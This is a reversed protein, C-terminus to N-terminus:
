SNLQSMRDLYIKTPIDLPFQVQIKKFLNKATQFDSSQYANFAATFLKALIFDEPKPGIESQDDISALLEFIKTKEKKGKVEIIDLPRVVFLNEVKAFTHEGIIIKTHYTKNTSQLREALNVADGILTYNMRESTGINGAIAIGTNIGIRTPFPPLNKEKREENLIRIAKQCLLATKCALEAQNVMPEPAGWIAMIADGIYKDITGNERLIATTLLDFYESLLTMTTEVPYSESITTFDEIDSFFITVEKKEGGLVIEKGQSLLKKVVEKPVYRSFSRIANRLAAISRDMIYIESIKSNVRTNSALEFNTIKDVERALVMIPKSIRNSFFVVFISCLSFILLSIAIVKHQNSIIESFFDLIPDLTIILWNKGFDSPFDRISVLYEVHNDTILFDSKKNNAYHSSISQIVRQIEPKVKEPVLLDGKPSIIVTMEEKGIKNESLFESFYYLPLSAGVVGILKKSPGDYVPSSVSVAKENSPIVRYIDSWYAKGNKEADLYWPRIRPDYSLSAQETFIPRMQEDLYTWSELMQDRDAIMYAYAAGEPAQKQPQFFEPHHTLSLNYVVVANGDRTGFFIAQLVRHYKITELMYEITAEKEALLDPHNKFFVEALQPVRQIESVMCYIRDFVITSVQKITIGYISRFSKATQSYTYLIIISSSASILLLFISLITFRITKNKTIREFM